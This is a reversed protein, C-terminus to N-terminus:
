RPWARHGGLSVVAGSVEINFVGVQPASGASLQEIDGLWQGRPLHGRAFLPQLVKYPCLVAGLAPSGRAKRQYRNTHLNFRGRKVRQPVASM